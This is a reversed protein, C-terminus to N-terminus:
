LGMLVANWEFRVQAMFIDKPDSGEKKAQERIWALQLELGPKGKARRIFHYNFGAGYRTFSASQNVPMSDGSQERREWMSYRGYVDLKRGALTLLPM